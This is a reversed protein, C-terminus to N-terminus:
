TTQRSLLAAWRTLADRTVLFTREAGDQQVHFMGTGKMRSPAHLDPSAELRGLEAWLAEFGEPELAGERPSGGSYLGTSSEAPTVPRYAFCIPAGVHTQWLETRNASGDAFHVRWPPTPLSSM